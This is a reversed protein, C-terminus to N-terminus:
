PVLRSPATAMLVGFGALVVALAAVLPGGIALV